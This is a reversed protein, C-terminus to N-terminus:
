DEFNLIERKLKRTVWERQIKAHYGNNIFRSYIKWLQCFIFILFNEKMMSEHLESVFNLNEEIEFFIIAVFLM